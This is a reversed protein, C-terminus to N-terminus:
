KERESLHPLVDDEDSYDLDVDLEQDLEKQSYETAARRRWTLCHIIAIAIRTCPSPTLRLGEGQKSASSSSAGGGM